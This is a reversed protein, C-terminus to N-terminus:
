STIWASAEGLESTTFMRVDGPMAWSLAQITHRLWDSDGVIAIREWHRFHGLGLKLDEWDAGATTGPFEQGFVFLMRVKGDDSASEAAEVAPILVERYDDATVKEHAEIGVVTAPLGQIPTLV